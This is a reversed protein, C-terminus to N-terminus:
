PCFWPVVNRLRERGFVHRVQWQSYRVSFHTLVLTCLPHTVAWPRIQPWVCHAWKVERPEGYGRAEAELYTCESVVLPYQALEEGRAGEFVAATTDGLYALMPAVVTENVDVGARVLDGIDARGVFEPRLRRRSSWLGFGVSPVRHTTELVHAVYGRPLAVRDGAVVGHLEYRGSLPAGNLAEAAGLFAQFQPVSDRPLYFSARRNCLMPALTCHDLHTHTVFVCQPSTVSDAWGCDFMWGLQKVQFCTGEGARSTGTLTCNDANPVAIMM